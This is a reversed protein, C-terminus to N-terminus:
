LHNAAAGFDVRALIRRRADNPHDGADLVLSYSLLAGGCRWGSASLALREKAQLSLRDTYPAGVDGFKCLKDERRRPFVGIILTITMIIAM